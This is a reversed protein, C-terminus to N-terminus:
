VHSEGALSAVLTSGSGVALALAYQWASLRDAHRALWALDILFFSQGINIVSGALLLGRLSRISWIM